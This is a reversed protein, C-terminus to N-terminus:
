GRTTPADTPDGIIAACARTAKRAGSSTQDWTSDRSSYGDSGPDPFDPAGSRQMCEAYTRRTEIQEASLKPRRLEQIAEPAPVELSRCKEQAALFEPDSKLAAADGPFTVQGTPDPDTVDVGEKRLCAVWSRVGDLYSAVDSDSAAGSTGSPGPAATNASAVQPEEGGGCGALTVIVATAAVAAGLRGRIPNCFVPM